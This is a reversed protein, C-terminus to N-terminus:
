VLRVSTAECSLSASMGNSTSGGFLPNQNVRIPVRAGMMSMIRNKMRNMLEICPPPLRTMLKPLLRARLIVLSWGFTVKESTAPASSATWSSVSIL